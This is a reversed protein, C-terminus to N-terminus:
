FEIELKKKEAEFKKKYNLRMLKEKKSVEAARQADFEGGIKEKM